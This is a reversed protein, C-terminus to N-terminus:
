GHKESSGKNTNGRARVSRQKAHRRRLESLSLLGPAPRAPYKPRDEGLTSKVCSEEPTESVGHM